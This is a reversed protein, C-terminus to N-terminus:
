GRKRGERDRKRPLLVERAWQSEAGHTGEVLQIDCAKLIPGLRRRFEEVWRRGPMVFANGSASEFCLSFRHIDEAYGNGAEGEARSLLRELREAADTELLLSEGETLLNVQRMPKRPIRYRDIEDSM